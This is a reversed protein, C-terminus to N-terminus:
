EYRLAVMPDVRTARAAPLYGALFAATLLTFTAAVFSLPDRATLGFLQAEIIRGLGYGGPLGIAVGVLALLAVERLVMLLVTRRQAGLAVRIGIERTRLSVAYSMVGYLGLAALLTALLGFAASLVAVMREVFLSEGIQARMTKMGTVPLTPDVREVVQRVQAGLAEPATRSRVYFTTFGIDNQQLLPIYVFRLPGERLSAAKGDRVVGVIEIDAKDDPGGLGFHRGLPDKDRYYYRVFSENVIAVKTTGSRDDADFERGALLPIGLTAFFGPGVHNFNPNMNEDEKAVYGDVTITSSSNSDTMLAERCESVAATGPEAAIEDQLKQVLAARRSADYGNLSPDVSFALLRDPEFGPNLARLNALSRTFLGCGILLLLSLAVQAVVLVKRFHFHAPGGALSGAENKLTHALELRTSQWAPALGFLLGTVLSLAFAFLAVRPDVDASLARPAQEFPLARLLLGGTWVAVAIGLVGGVLSLAVSEVLLQRVLRGRSAGLALRLAMERHRTSARALLLNAVNACAILLVLGVMGMLVLLPTRAEARLESSGRGGPLLVLKKELFAKRQRESRIESHAVDEDLLQRYLVDLRAKAQEPSVGPKLRALVTLWRTRWDGLGRGTRWTPLVQAQMMLPVYLDVSEGVEVGHFGAPAVGIVTMPQNNLSLTQGVIGPDAAFRRTWYGHGLVVLPHAGPVRDDAPGFLRGVVPKLGLTDFFTGSVLDGNAAETRGKVFVHVEATFHALVGSFVDNRDRLQEFMPHSLPTLTNSHNHTSGSFTGPADVLVLREPEAVPLLRLILQDMLSFIATNTGIGLALTIVVVLAFGPQKALARFAYRLDTILNGM